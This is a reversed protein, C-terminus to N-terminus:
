CLSFYPTEATRLGTNRHYQFGGPFALKLVARRDSLRGSDWIKYSSAIFDLATRLAADYSRMPRMSQTSKEILVTRNRYHTTRNEIRPNQDFIVIRSLFDEKEKEHTTEGAWDHSSSRFGYTTIIKDHMHRILTTLAIDSLKGGDPM